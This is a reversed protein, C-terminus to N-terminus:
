NDQLMAIIRREIVPSAIIGERLKEVLKIDMEPKINLKNDEYKKIIHEITRIEVQNNCDFISDCSFGDYEESTIIVTTEKPLGKCRNLVKDIGSSACALIIFEDSSPDINIVVFFHPEKSTFRDEPFYYVSGAKISARIVESPIRLM